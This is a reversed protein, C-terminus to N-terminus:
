RNKEMSGCKPFKFTCAFCSFSRGVPHLVHCKCEDVFPKYMFCTLNKGKGILTVGDETNTTDMKVSQAKMKRVDSSVNRDNQLTDNDTEDM